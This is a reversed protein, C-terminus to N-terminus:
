SGYFLRRLLEEREDIRSMLRLFTKDLFPYIGEEVAENEILGRIVKPGPETCEKIDKSYMKAVKMIYKDYVSESVFVKNTYKLRKEIICDLAFGVLVYASSIDPIRHRPDPIREGSTYDEEYEMFIEEKIEGEENLRINTMFGAPISNSGEFEKLSFQIKSGKSDPEHAESPAGKSRDPGTFWWLKVNSIHDTSMWVEVIKESVEKVIVLAYDGNLAANLKKFNFDYKEFVEFITKRIDQRDDNVYTISLSILNYIRGHFFIHYVCDRDKISFKNILEVHDKDIYGEM